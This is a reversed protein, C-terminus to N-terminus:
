HIVWNSKRVLEPEPGKTLQVIYCGKSAYRQGPGFSLREYLPSNQDPIMGIVDFFNDRYYNGRMDMLAMVLVQVLSPALGAIRQTRDQITVDKLRLSTPADSQAPKSGMSSAAVYKSFSFPYAIYTFERLQEPLLWIDKGLCSSSVFVMGPRNGDEALTKVAPLMDSGGWLILAAPNERNSLQRLFDQSLSEGAKLTVTLPPQHGLDRWTELFGASLAQGERSAQVIQIIPRGAAAEDRTNLYRAVAEGEQYYGKSFYQTYWDTDSVVPFDTIPFLCPIHHDESFQHIPRWDENSIGGLLAFVPEKRYYEELQGRWTEPAGKLLWRSVSITRVAMERSGLMNEAMLRSRSGRPTNFASVLSNKINVLNDLASLMADREEPKVGDTIVTAFSMNTASVGPSVTSSLSKLYSVLIAMDADDILYRPMVDNLKYRPPVDGSRIAEALSADTYAPRRLPLPFYKQEMNKFLPQHPQYLKVGNTPPTYVGGEVSGLGSRLHCSVCTFSTGPVPLDGKVYAQMPEGSPLLGERYIREGLHLREQDSLAPSATEGFSGAVVFFLSFVAGCMLAIPLGRFRRYRDAGKM